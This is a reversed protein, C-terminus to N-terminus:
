WFSNVFANSIGRAGNNFAGGSEGVWALAWPGNAQITATLNGFVLSAKDLHDPNLIKKMVNPDNGTVHYYLNSDCTKEKRYWWLRRTGYFFFNLESPEVEELSLIWTFSFVIHLTSIIVLLWVLIWSSRLSFKRWRKLSLLYYM